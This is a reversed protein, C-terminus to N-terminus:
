EVFTSRTTAALGRRRQTDFANDVWGHTVDRGAQDVTSWVQWSTVADDQVLVTARSILTSILTTNVRGTDGSIADGVTWPGLYIRGRRRAAIAGSPTDAAFSLCVAVESPLDTTGAPSATWNTDAWTDIPVRPEPDAMDYQKVIANEPQYRSSMMSAPGGAGSYFSTLKTRVDAIDTPLPESATGFYWTNTVANEALNTDHPIIVQARIVTM